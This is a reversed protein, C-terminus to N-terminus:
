VVVGGGRGAGKRNECLALLRAQNELKARNLEEKRKGIQKM